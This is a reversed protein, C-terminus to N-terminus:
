TSHRPERQKFLKVFILSPQFQLKPWFLKITGAGLSSLFDFLLKKQFFFSYNFFYRQRTIANNMPKSPAVVNPMVVNLTIVSLMVDSLMVDSLMDVSLMVSLMIIDLMLANLMVVNLMVVNMMVVNMM